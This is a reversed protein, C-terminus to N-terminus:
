GPQTPVIRAPDASDPHTPVIRAPHSSSSDGRDHVLIILVRCPPYNVGLWSLASGDLYHRGLWSLASGALITGVWEPYHGGLWSLARVSLITGARLTTPALRDIIWGSDRYDVRAPRYDVRAPRYDM